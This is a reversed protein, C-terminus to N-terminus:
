EGVFSRFEDLSAFRRGSGNMMEGIVSGDALVVVRRGGHQMLRAGEPPNTLLYAPDSPDPSGSVPEFAKAATFVPLGNLKRNALSICSFLLVLAAIMMALMVLIPGPTITWVRSGLHFDLWMWLLGAALIVACALAIAAPRTLERKM